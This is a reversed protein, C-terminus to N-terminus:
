EKYTKNVDSIQKLTLKLLDEFHQNETSNMGSFQAQISAREVSKAKRTSDQKMTSILPGGRSRSKMASINQLKKFAECPNLEGVAVKDKINDADLEDQDDAKKTVFKIKNILQQKQSPTM